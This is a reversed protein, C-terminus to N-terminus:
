RTTIPAIMTPDIRKHNYVSMAHPCIIQDVQFHRCTCNMDRMDVIWTHAAKNTIAYNFQDAPRSQLSFSTLCMLKNLTMIM